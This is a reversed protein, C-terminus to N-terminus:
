DGMYRGSSYERNLFDNFKAISADLKDEFEDDFIPAVDFGFSYERAFKNSSVMISKIHTKWDGKQIDEIVDNILNDITRIVRHSHNTYIDNYYNYEIRNDDIKANAINLLWQNKKDFELALKALKDDVYKQQKEPSRKMIGPKTLMYERIDKEMKELYKAKDNALRNKTEETIDSLVPVVYKKIDEVFADMEKEGYGLRSYNIDMYELYNSFGNEKAIKDRLAVMKKDLFAKAVAKRAKVRKNRDPDTFLPGMQGESMEEGEYQIRTMAKERQYEAVLKEEEAREKQAKSGTSISKQLKDTLVPGYKEVLTPYYKNDLIAKLLPTTDLMANGESEKQLAEQWFSSSSDLSAHIYSLTYNYGVDELAADYTRLVDDLETSSSAKEANDTLEVIEKKLAEYDTPDYKLEDFKYNM